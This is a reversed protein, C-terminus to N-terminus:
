RHNLGVGRHVVSSILKLSHRLKIQETWYKTSKGKICAQEQFNQASERDWCEVGKSLFWLLAIM